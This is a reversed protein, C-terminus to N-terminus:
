TDKTVEPEDRTLPQITVANTIQFSGEEEMVHGIADSYEPFEGKVIYVPPHKKGTDYGFTTLPLQMQTAKEHAMEILADEYKEDGYLREMFIAARSPDKPNSLLVLRTIVRAVVRGEDVVAIMRTAGNMLYGLLGKVYNPQGISVDLCSSMGVGCLLLHYPDDTDIIQQSRSLTKTISQRWSPLYQQVAQLHPNNPEVVYRQEQFTGQFVSQIYNHLYESILPNNLQQIKSAFVLIAEPKICSGFTRNWAAQLDSTEQDNGVLTRMLLSQKTKINDFAEKEGSRILM